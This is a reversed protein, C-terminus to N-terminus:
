RNASLQRKCNNVSNASNFLSIYLIEANAYCHSVARLPGHPFYLKLGERAFVGKIALAGFGAVAGLCAMTSAAPSPVRV